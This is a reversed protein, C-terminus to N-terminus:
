LMTWFKGGIESDVREEWSGWIILGLVYLLYFGSYLLLLKDDEYDAM